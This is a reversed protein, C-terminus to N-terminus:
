DFFIDTSKRYLVVKLNEQLEDFSFSDAIISLIRQKRDLGRKNIQLSVNFCEWFKNVKKQLENKKISPDYPVGNLLNTTYLYRILAQDSSPDEAYTWFELQLILLIHIIL